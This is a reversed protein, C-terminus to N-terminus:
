KRFEALPIYKVGGEGSTILAKGNPLFECRDVRAFTLKSYVMRKQTLDYISIGGQDDDYNPKCSAVALFRSDSSLAITKVRNNVKIRQSISGNNLNYIEITNALRNSIALLESDGSFAMADIRNDKKWSYMKRCDTGDLIVLLQEQMLGPLFDSGGEYAIYRGDPSVMVNSRHGEDHFEGEIHGNTINKIRVFDDAGIGFEFLQVVLHEGDPLIFFDGMMAGTDYNFVEKGTERDIVQLGKLHYLILKSGDASYELCPGPANTDVSGKPKGSELDYFDIEHSRAVALTTSDPSFAM